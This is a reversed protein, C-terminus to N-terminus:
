NPHACQTVCSDACAHIEFTGGCETVSEAPVDDLTVNVAGAFHEVNARGVLPAHNTDANRFM